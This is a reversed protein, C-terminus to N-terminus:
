MGMMKEVEVDLSELLAKHLEVFAPSTSDRPRPIDVTIIEKITSARVRFLRLIYTLGSTTEGTDSYECINLAHHFSHRGQELIFNDGGGDLSVFRFDHHCAHHYFNSCLPGM